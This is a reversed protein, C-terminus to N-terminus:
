NTVTPEKLELGPSGKWCPRVAFALWSSWAPVEAPLDSMTPVDLSSSGVPTWTLPGSEKGAVSSRLLLPRLGRCSTPLISCDVSASRRPWCASPHISLHISQGCMCVHMCAHMCAHKCAYNCAYMCVHVFAYIHMCEHTCAHLSVFVHTCAYVCGDM